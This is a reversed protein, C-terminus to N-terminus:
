QGRRVIRSLSSRSAAASALTSTLSFKVGCDQEPDARLHGGTRVPCLVPACRSGSADAARGDPWVLHKATQVDFSLVFRPAGTGVYTSWHDVGPNDQLQEREFRAIQANTVTISANQPLSWDIVLEARDSSPFFQQQVFKM